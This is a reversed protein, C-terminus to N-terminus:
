ALVKKKEEAAKNLDIFQKEKQYDNVAAVLSCIAVALFIAAGEIWAISKDEETALNIVTSIFASVLLIQMTFDDLAEFLM